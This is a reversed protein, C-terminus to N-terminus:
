NAGHATLQYKSGVKEVIGQEQLYDLAPTLVATPRYNSSIAQKLNKQTLPGHRRLARTAASAATLLLDPRDAALVRQQEQRLLRLEEQLQDIRAEYQNYDM